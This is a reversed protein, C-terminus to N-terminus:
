RHIPRLPRGPLTFRHVLVVRVVVIGAGTVGFLVGNAGGHEVVGDGHEDGRLGHAQPFPCGHVLRRLAHNVRALGGNEHHVRRAPERADEGLAIEERAYDAAAEVRLRGRQGHDHGWIGLHEGDAIPDGVGHM